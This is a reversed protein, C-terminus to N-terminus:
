DTGPPDSVSISIPPFGEIGPRWYLNVVIKGGMHLRALEDGDPDWVSTYIDDEVMVPLDLVDNNGKLIANSEKFDIPKM